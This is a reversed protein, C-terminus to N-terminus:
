GNIAAVIKSRVPEEVEDALALVRSLAEQLLKVQDSSSGPVYCVVRSADDTDEPEGRYIGPGHVKLYRWADHTSGKEIAETICQEAKVVFRGRARLIDEWWEAYGPEEALAKRRWAIWENKRVGATDCAAKVSSCGEKFAEVIKLKKEHFRTPRVM